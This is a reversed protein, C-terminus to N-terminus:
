LRKRIHLTLITPYPIPKDERLDSLEKHAIEILKGNYDRIQFSINDFSTVSIPYYSPNVFTHDSYGDDTYLPLTALLRSDKNNFKSVKVLSSYVFGIKHKYSLKTDKVSLKQTNFQLEVGYLNLINSTGHILPNHYFRVNEPLALTTTSVGGSQRTTTTFKIDRVSSVAWNEDGEGLNNYFDVIAANIARTLYYTTPYYGHAVRLERTEAGKLRLVLLDNHTCVNCLPGYFISKLAVEYNETLNFTNDFQTNFDSPLNVDSAITIFESMTLM